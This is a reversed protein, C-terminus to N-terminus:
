RLSSNWSRRNTMVSRTTVSNGNFLQHLIALAASGDCYADAATHRPLVDHAYLLNVLEPFLQNLVPSDAMVVGPRLLTLACLGTLAFKSLLSLNRM